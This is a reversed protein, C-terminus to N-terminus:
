PTYVTWLPETGATKEDNALVTVWSRGDVISGGFYWNGLWVSKMSNTAPDYYMQAVDLLNNNGTGDPVTEEWYAAGSGVSLNGTITQVMYLQTLPTWKNSHESWYYYAGQGEMGSNRGSKLADMFGVQLIFGGETRILSGVDASYNAKGSPNQPVEKMFLSPWNPSFQSTYKTDSKVTNNTSLSLQRVVESQVKPMVVDNSPLWGTWASGIVPGDFGIWEHPLKAIVVSGDSLSGDSSHYPTFYITTYGTLDPHRMDFNRHNTPAWVIGNDIPLVFLQMNQYGKPVSYNVGSINIRSTSYTSDITWSQGYKVTGSCSSAVIKTIGKQPLVSALYNAPVLPTVVKTIGPKYISTGSTEGWMHQSNLVEPVKWHNLLEMIESKARDRNGIIIADVAYAYEGGYFIVWYEYTPSTSQSAAPPTRENLVLTAKGASTSITKHSIITSHNGVVEKYGDAKLHPLRTVLLQISLDKWRVPRNPEVVEGNPLTLITQFLPNTQPQPNDTTNNIATENGTLTSKKGVSSNSVFSNGCGSLM